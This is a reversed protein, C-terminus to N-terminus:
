KHKTSNKLLPYVDILGLSYFLENTQEKNKNKLLELLTNRNVSQGIIKVEEDGILAMKDYGLQKVRRIGEM